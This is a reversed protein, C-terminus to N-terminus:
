SSISLISMHRQPPNLKTVFTMYNYCFTEATKLPLNKLPAILPTTIAIILIFCNFYLITGAFLFVLADLSIFHKVLCAILTIAFLSM